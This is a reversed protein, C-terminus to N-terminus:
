PLNKSFNRIEKQHNFQIRNLYIGPELDSPINKLMFARLTQCGECSLRTLPCVGVTTRITLFAFFVDFRPMKVNASLALPLTFTEETIETITIPCLVAEPLVHVFVTKGVPLALLMGFDERLYLGTISNTSASYM